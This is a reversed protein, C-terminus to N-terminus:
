WIGEFYSKYGGWSAACYRSEVPRFRTFYDDPESSRYANLNTIVGGILGVIQKIATRDKEPFAQGRAQESRRVLSESAEAIQGRLQEEGRPDQHFWNDADRFRNNRADLAKSMITEKFETFGPPPKITKKPPTASKLLCAGATVSNAQGLKMDPSKKINAEPECRPSVGQSDQVLFVPQRPNSIGGIKVELQQLSPRAEDDAYDRSYTFQRDKSTQTTTTKPYSKSDLNMTDLIAYIEDKLTRQTSNGGSSLRSSLSSSDQSKHAERTMRSYTPLETNLLRERSHTTFSPESRIATSAMPKEYDQDASGGYMLGSTIEPLDTRNNRHKLRVSEYPSKDHPRDFNERYLQLSSSQMYETRHSHQSYPKSHPTDRAMQAMPTMGSPGAGGDPLNWSNARKLFPSESIYSSERSQPPNYDGAYSLPNKQTYTGDQSPNWSRDQLNEVHPERQWSYDQSAFRSPSSKQGPDESLGYEASTSYAPLGSQSEETEYFAAVESTTDSQSARARRPRNRSSNTKTYLQILSVPQSSALDRDNSIEYESSRLFAPNTPVYNEPRLDYKQTTMSSNQSALSRFPSRRLPPQSPYQFSSSRPSSPPPSVATPTPLSFESLSNHQRGSGHEIAMKKPSGGQLVELPQRKRSRQGSGYTGPRLKNGYSGFRSGYDEHRYPGSDSRPGGFSGSDEDYGSSDSGHSTRKSRLKHGTMADKIKDLIKSM